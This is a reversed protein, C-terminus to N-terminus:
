DGVVAECMGPVDDDLPATAYAAARLTGATRLFALHPSMKARALGQTQYAKAKARDENEGDIARNDM